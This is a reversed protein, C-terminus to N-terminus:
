SLSLGDSKPDSSRLNSGQMGSWNEIYNLVQKEILHRYRSHWYKHHTPCLPILNDSSNNEHNEDLHHVEIINYEDCVVCRKKHYYFCTSRYTEEKWM